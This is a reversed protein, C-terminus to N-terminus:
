LESQTKKATVRNFIAQNGAEIRGTAVDGPNCKEGISEDALPQFQQALKHRLCSYDGHQDVRFIRPRHAVGAVRLDGGVAEALTNMKDM